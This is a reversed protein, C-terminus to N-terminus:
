AAYQGSWAERAQGLVALTELLEAAGKARGKAKRFRDAIPDAAPQPTAPEPM